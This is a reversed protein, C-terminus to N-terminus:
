LKQMVIVYEENMSSVPNNKVTSVRKPIRKSVIERKAVEKEEYGKDVLYQITIRTLNICVGDVTRNGLTMVIKSKTVRSVQDLFEFYGSFYRIVKTQKRKAISNIFPILEIIDKKEKALNQYPGGLSKSDIRSFNDFEWGELDLDRYDMWLLPLISFQGYTVTTANDGYPPSTICIDFESDDVGKLYKIADGKVLTFSNLTNQFLKYSKEVAFIYDSILNNEIREIKIEPKTHLKYTSSRTNSYKRIINILMYWFFMRNKQDRISMIASRIKSLDNIIDDRFWKKINPFEHVEEDFSEKLTEKIRQIDNEIKESVGQLKVKTILNALPNIDCGFLQASDSLKAAEYLATGSGHFPDIIKMEKKNCILESLIDKQVPAIMVAPYLATGHIDCSNRYDKYTIDRM